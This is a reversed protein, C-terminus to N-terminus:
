KYIYTQLKGDKYVRTGYVKKRCQEVTASIESLENKPLRDSGNTHQWFSELKVRSDMGLLRDLKKKAGPICLAVRVHMLRLRVDSISAASAARITKNAQMGHVQLKGTVFVKYFKLVAARLTCRQWQSSRASGGWL